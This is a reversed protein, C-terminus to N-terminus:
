SVYVDKKTISLSVVSWFFISNFNGLSILTSETLNYFLYALIIVLYTKSTKDFRKFNAVISYIILTLVIILGIIGNEVIINIFSNHPNTVRNGPMSGFIFEIPKMSSTAILIRDLRGTLINNFDSINLNVILFPVLIIIAFFLILGVHLFTKKHKVMNILLYNIIFLIFTYLSTRSDSMIIMTLFFLFLVFQMIFREKKFTIFILFIGFLSYSALTNPNQFLFHYRPRIHWDNKFEGFYFVSIIVSFLIMLFYIDRYKKFEFKPDKYVNPIIFLIIFFLQMYTISHFIATNNVRTNILSILLSFIYVVYWLIIADNAKTDKFNIIQLFILIIPIIFKTLYSFKPFVSFESFFIAIILINFLTKM